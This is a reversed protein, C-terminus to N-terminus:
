GGSTMSCIAEVHATQPFLDVPIVRELRYGARKLRAVDRALTAPDCSVLVLREPGRATIAEAVGAGLGTRPPNAVVVDWRTGGPERLFALVDAHRFRVGHLGERLVAERGCALAQGDADCVIVRAGRRALAMGHVGVGGYLDLARAGELPGACEVVLSTMVDAMETNVQIFSAAPLQYTTGAVREEIWDRGLIPLARTGGRRGPASELIVVGRIEEHQRTLLEALTLALTRPFRRAAERIAVLIEGTSRSSRLVLRFQEDGPQAFLEGHELLVARATALVANAPEAQLLCRQVDVLALEPGRVHLGLAPQGLADRGLTLEVRNRYGLGAPAAQISEVEVERTAGIRALAEILLRRKWERQDPEALVMWPCGGCRSQLPCPPERRAPSPRLITRARGEVYRARSRVPEVMVRDGPVAGDIFWVRGERRAVGRGGGALDDVELEVLSATSGVGMDQAGTDDPYSM